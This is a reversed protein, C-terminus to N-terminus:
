QDMAVTHPIPYLNSTFFGHFLMMKGCFEQSKINEDPNQSKEEYGEATRIHHFLMQFVRYLLACYQM